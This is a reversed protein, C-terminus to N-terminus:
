VHKGIQLLKVAEEDEEETDHALQQLISQPKQFFSTYILSIFSAALFIWNCVYFGTAAFPMGLAIKSFFSATVSLHCVASHSAIPKVPPPYCSLPDSGNHPDYTQTGYSAYRPALSVLAMSLAFLIHILVGCLILLAQPKTRGPHVSFPRPLALLGYLSAGFVYVVLCGFVVYDLPFWGALYLLAEDLPSSLVAGGEMTFGCSSGCSSHLLRDISTVLLSFLILLSLSLMVMGCLIRFPMLFTICSCASEEQLQYNEYSLRNHQLEIKRLEDLDRKSVSSGSSKHDYKLQIARQKARLQTLDGELASRRARASPRGRLWLLPLAALGYATFTMWACCGVLTLCAICFAIAAYGGHDIDLLEKVWSLEELHPQVHSGPKSLLGAALMACVLLLLLLQAYM